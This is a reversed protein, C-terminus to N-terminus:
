PRDSWEAFMEPSPSNMDEIGWGQGENSLVVTQLEDEMMGFPVHAHGRGDYRPNALAGDWGDIATVVWGGFIEDYEPHSPGVAAIEDFFEKNTENSLEAITALDRAQYALLFARATAMPDDRDVVEQASALGASLLLPLALVVRRAFCFTTM